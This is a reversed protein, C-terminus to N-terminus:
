IIGENNIPKLKRYMDFEYRGDDLKRQNVKHTAYITPSFTRLFDEAAEAVKGFEGRFTVIIGNDFERPADQELTEPNM